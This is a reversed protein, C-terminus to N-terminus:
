KIRELDRTRLDFNRKQFAFAGTCDWRTFSGLFQIFESSKQVSYNSIESTASSLSELRRQMIVQCKCESNQTSRYYFAVLLRQVHWARRCSRCPSTMKGESIEERVSFGQAEKITPKLKMENPLIKKQLVSLCNLTKKQERMIGESVTDNFWNDDHVAIDWCITFVKTDSAM